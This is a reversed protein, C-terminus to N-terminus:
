LLKKGVFSGCLWVICLLIAQSSLMYKCCLIRLAVALVCLVACLVCYRQTTVIRPATQPRHPGMRGTGWGDLCLQGGGTRQITNHQM